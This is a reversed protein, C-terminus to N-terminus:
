ANNENNTTHGDAAELGKLYHDLDVMTISGSADVDMVDFEEEIREVDDANVLGMLLLKKIVFESKEIEGDGDTDFARFDGVTIKKSLIKELTQKQKAEVFTSAISSLVGGISVVSVLLYICSVGKGWNTTPSIDGYGITTGTVVAYYFARTWSIDSDSHILLMGVLLVACMKGVSPLLQKLVTRKQFRPPAKKATKTPAELAFAASTATDSLGKALDAASKANAAAIKATAAASKASQVAKDHAAVVEAAIIGLSTGLLMIGFLAFFATFLMVADDRWVSDNECTGATVDEDSCQGCQTFNCHDGYGVTTLTVIVFYFANLASMDAVVIYVIAGFIIYCATIAVAIRFMVKGEKELDSDEEHNETLTGRRKM